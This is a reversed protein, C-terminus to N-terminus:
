SVIEEMSFEKRKIGSRVVQEELLPILQRQVSVRHGLRGVGDSASDTVLSAEMEELDRPGAALSPGM